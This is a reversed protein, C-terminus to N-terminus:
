RSASGVPAAAQLWACFDTPAGQRGMLATVLDGLVVTNFEVECKGPAIGQSWILFPVRSDHRSDFSASRRWSHDGTVILTTLPELGAARIRDRITTLTRDALELNALYGRPGLETLGIRHASGSYIWPDHPVPLHLLVVQLGPDTAAELAATLMQRYRVLHIIRGGGPLVSAWQHLMTAPLGEPVGLHNGAPWYHCRVLDAGLSTRCYPVTWGILGTNLSEARLRQILTPALSELTASAVAGQLLLEANRPGKGKTHLIRRGTLYSIMSESTNGAPSYAHTAFVGTRSLSDFGPLKVTSPREEFSIRYDLEDLVVVVARRHDAAVTIRSAPARSGYEAGLDHRLVLVSGRVLTVVLFPSLMLYVRGVASALPRHWLWLCWLALGTTILLVSWVSTAASNRLSHTMGELPLNLAQRAANIPLVASLIVLGDALARVVRGQGELGRYALGIVVGALLLNLFAAALDRNSISILFANSTDAEFFVSWLSLFALNAFSAGAVSATLWEKRTM